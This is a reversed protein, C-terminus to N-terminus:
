KVRKVLVRFHYCQINYGGAGITTVKATGKEGVIIGNIDGFRCDMDEASIIVEGTIKIIRAVLAYYKKVAEKKMDATIKDLVAPTLSRVFGMMNRVYVTFRDCLERRRALYLRHDEERTLTGARIKEEAEEQMRYGEAKWKLLEECEKIQFDIAEEEWRILLEQIGELGKLVKVDRIDKEMEM